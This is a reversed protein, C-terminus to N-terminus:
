LQFFAPSSVVASPVLKGKDDQLGLGILFLDDSQFDTGTNIQYASPNATAPTDPGIDPVGSDNSVM